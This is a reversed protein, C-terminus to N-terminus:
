TCCASVRLISTHAHEIRPLKRPYRHVLAQYAPVFTSRDSSSIGRDRNATSLFRDQAPQLHMGLLDHKSRVAPADVWTISLQDTCRTPSVPSFLSGYSRGCFLLSRPSRPSFNSLFAISFFPLLFLLFSFFLFLLLLLLLLLPLESITTLLLASRPLSILKRPIRAHHTVLINREEKNGRQKM